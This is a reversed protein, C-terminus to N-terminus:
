SMYASSINKSPALNNEIGQTASLSNNLLSNTFPVEEGPLTGATVYNTAEQKNTQEPISGSVQANDSQSIASHVAESSSSNFQSRSFLEVETQQRTHPDVHTISNVNHNQELVPHEIRNYVSPYDSEAQGNPRPDTGEIVYVNGSAQEAFSKSCDDWFRSEENKCGDYSIRFGDPREDFIVGAKELEDRNDLLCMELTKGNNQSAIDIAVDQGGLGDSKGHWFYAENPETKFCHSHAAIDFYM